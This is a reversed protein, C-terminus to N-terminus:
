DFDIEDALELSAALGVGLSSRGDPGTAIPRPEGKLAQTPDALGPGHDAALGGPAHAIQNHGLESAVNVIRALTAEPFGLAAGERRVRERVVAVSAEDIVAIPEVGALWEHVLLAVM